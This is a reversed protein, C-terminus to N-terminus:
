YETYSLLYACQKYEFYKLLNYSHNKFFFCDCYSLKDEPFSGDLLLYFIFHSLILLMLIYVCFVTLTSFLFIVCTKPFVLWAEYRLARQNLLYLTLTIQFLSSAHRLSITSYFKCEPM